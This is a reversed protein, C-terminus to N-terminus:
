YRESSLKFLKLRLKKIEADREEFGSKSNALVGACIEEAKYRLEKEASLEAAFRRELTATNSGATSLSAPSTIRRQSDFPTFKSESRQVGICRFERPTKLNSSSSLDAYQHRHDNSSRGQSSRLWQIMNNANQLKEQMAHLTRQDNQREEVLTSKKNRLRSMGDTALTKLENIESQMLSITNSCEEISHKLAGNESQLSRMSINNHENERMLASVREHM